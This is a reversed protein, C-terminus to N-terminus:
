WMCVYMCAYLCSLVCVCVCVDDEGYLMESKVVVGCVQTDRVYHALCVCAHVVYVGRLFLVVVFVCV